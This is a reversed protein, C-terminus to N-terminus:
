RIVIMKKIDTRQENISLSYEYIGAPLNSTNFTIKKTGDSLNTIPIVQKLQGWSDYIKIDANEAGFLKFYFDTSSNSPNPVNQLLQGNQLKGISKKLPDKTFPLLFILSDRYAVYKVKSKPKYQPMSGIFIPRNGTTDMITYLHGLDIIAFVSDNPNTSNQIRNEYWSIAEPYNQLQIDCKNALFDGLQTLSTDALISDNTLYFTKLGSFDNGAYPETSFLEKMAALAYTSKPYTEVLLQFVNIADTYYGISDYSMGTNFMQEDPNIQVNGGELPCWTPYPLFVGYNLKLDTSPVFNNGWCNYTVDYKPLPGTRLNDYFLLPDSESVIANYKMYFPLCNNTAYLDYDTCNSIEQTRSYDQATQLGTM